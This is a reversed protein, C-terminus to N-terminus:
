LGLVAVPSLAVVFALTQLGLVVLTGRLDKRFWRIAFFAIIPLQGAMLLQWIHAAAGEDSERAIGFVAVHALVLLFAAGSMVVPLIGSPRMLAARLKM